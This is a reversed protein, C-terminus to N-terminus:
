KTSNNLVAKKYECGWEALALIVPHLSEGLATLSYEVKPPVLPFVERNVIGYEEMDRLNSTLVKQSIGGLSKQLQNFRKTGDMLDRLILISWKNSILTLTTEVPCPPLTKIM